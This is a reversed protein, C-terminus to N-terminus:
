YYFFFNIVNAINYPFSFALMLTHTHTNYVQEFSKLGAEKGVATMDELVAKKVDQPLSVFLM